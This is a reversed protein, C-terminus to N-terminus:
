RKIPPCTNKMPRVLIAQMELVLGNNTYRVGFKSGFDYGTYRISLEPPGFSIHNEFGYTASGFRDAFAQALSVRDSPLSGGTRVSPKPQDTKAATGCGELFILAGKSVNDRCLYRIESASVNASGAVKPSFLFLYADKPHEERGPVGAHCSVVLTDIEKVSRLASNIDNRNTVYRLHATKGPNRKKYMRKHRKAQALFLVHGSGKDPGYLILADLGSPDASMVPNGGCYAYVNVGGELGIPDRSIWRGM